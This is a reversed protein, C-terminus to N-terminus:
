PGHDIQHAFTLLREIRLVTGTCPASTIPGELALEYV